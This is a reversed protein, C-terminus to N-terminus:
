IRKLPILHLDYGLADLLREATKLTMNTRVKLLTVLQSDSMGCRRALETKTIKEKALADLITQNIQKTFKM